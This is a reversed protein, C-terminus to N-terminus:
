MCCCVDYVDVIFAYGDYLTDDGIHGRLMLM